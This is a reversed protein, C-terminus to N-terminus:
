NANIRTNSNLMHYNVSTHQTSTPPGHYKVQTTPQLSVRLDTGLLVPWQCYVAPLPRDVQQWRPQHYFDRHHNGTMSAPWPSVCRRDLNATRKTGINSVVLFNATGM